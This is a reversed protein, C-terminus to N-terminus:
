ADHSKWNCSTVELLTRQLYTRSWCFPRSLPLHTVTSLPHLCCPRTQGRSYFHGQNAGPPGNRDKKVYISNSALSRVKNPSWKWSELGAEWSHCTAMEQSKVLWKNINTAMPTTLTVYRSHLSSDIIGKKEGTVSELLEWSNYRNHQLFHQNHESYFREKWLKCVCLVHM